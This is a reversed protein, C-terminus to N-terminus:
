DRLLNTLKPDKSGDESLRLGQKTDLMWRVATDGNLCGPKPDKVDVSRTYNDIVTYRIDKAMIDKFIDMYGCERAEEAIHVDPLIDLHRYLDYYGAM